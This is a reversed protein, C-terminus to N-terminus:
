PKTGQFRMTSACPFVKYQLATADCGTSGSAPQSSYRLTATFQDDALIEGDVTVTITETCTANFEADYTKTGEVILTGVVKSVPEQTLDTSAGFLNFTATDSAVSVVIQTGGPFTDALNCDDPPAAKVTTLTYTGASLTPQDWGPCASLAALLLM